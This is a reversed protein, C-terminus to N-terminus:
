TDHLDLQELGLVEVDTEGVVRDSFYSFYGELHPCIQMNGAHVHMCANMLELGWYEVRKYIYVYM